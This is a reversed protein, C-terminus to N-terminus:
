WKRASGTKTGTERGWGCADEREGGGRGDRRENEATDKRGM